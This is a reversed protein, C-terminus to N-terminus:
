VIGRKRLKVVIVPSIVILIGFVISLIISGIIPAKPTEVKLSVVLIKSVAGGLLEGEASVIARITYEGEDKLTISTKKNGEDEYIAFEKEEYTKNESEVVVRLKAEDKLVNIRYSVSISITDGPEAIGPSVEMTVDAFNMYIGLNRGTANKPMRMGLFGAMTPMIDIIRVSGNSLTKSTNLMGGSIVIPIEITNLGGHTGWNEYRSAYYPERISIVIDPGYPLDLDLDSLTGNVGSIEERTWIGMVWSLRKLYDVATDLQETHKLYIYALTGIGVARHEVPLGMIHEGDETMVNQERNVQIMSHDSMVILLTRNWLGLEKLHNVVRGIHGDIIELMNKYYDSLPGHTHGSSDPEPYDLVLLAREGNKISTYFMDIIDIFKQTLNYTYETRNEIPLTESYADYPETMLISTSPVGTAGFFVSVKKESYVIGTKVGEENAVEIISEARIMDEYGLHQPEEDILISHYHTANIAYTHLVGNIRPPAGTALAAWSATTASPIITRGIVYMGSEVLSTINPLKGENMLEELVSHNVADM